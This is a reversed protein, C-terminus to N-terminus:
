AGFCVRRRLNSLKQRGCGYCTGFDFNKCKSGSKKGTVEVNPPMCRSTPIRSLFCSHQLPTFVLPAAGRAMRASHEKSSPRWFLGSSPEWILWKSEGVFRFTTKFREFPYALPAHTHTHTLSLSLSMHQASTIRPRSAPHFAPHAASARALSQLLSLALCFPISLFLHSLSSLCISPYVSVYVSVCVCVRVCV